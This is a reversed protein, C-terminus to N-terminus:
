LQPGFSWNHCTTERKRPGGERSTGMFAQLGQDGTTWPAWRCARRGAAPTSGGGRDRGELFTEIVM